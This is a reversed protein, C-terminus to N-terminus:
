FKHTPLVILHTYYVYGETWRQLKIHGYKALIQPRCLQEWGQVELATSATVM